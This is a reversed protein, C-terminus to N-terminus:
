IRKEEDHDSDEDSELPDKNKDKEFLARTNINFIERPKFCKLSHPNEPDM